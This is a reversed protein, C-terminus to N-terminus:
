SELESNQRPRAQVCRTAFLKPAMKDEPTAMKLIVKLANYDMCAEESWSKSARISKLDSGFKMVGRSAVPGGEPPVLSVEDTMRCVCGKDTGVVNFCAVHM